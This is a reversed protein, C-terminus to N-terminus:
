AESVLSPVVLEVRVTQEGPHSFCCEAVVEELPQQSTLLPERLKVLEGLEWDGIKKGRGM